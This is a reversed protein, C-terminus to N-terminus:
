QQSLSTLVAIIEGPTATGTTGLKKITVASALNGLSAAEVGSAGAALSATLASLFCDGAGVTDIPPPVPVGPVRTSKGPSAWLSGDPGLTMCVPAGTVKSLAQAMDEYSMTQDACSCTGMEAELATMCEYDNPTTIVGRFLRVRSRSDVVVTKGEESLKRLTDRVTPTIIGHELQDSVAIADVEGAIRCLKEILENEIESQLPSRNDFDIRPDEYAVDSIGKRIPKCYAPSIRTSSRIIDSTDMGHQECVRLLERGRWDEGVVTLLKVQGVGLACLCAAVNAGAGASFREQVVPLPFHPTERSLESLTMDAHWYIDLCSDGILLISLSGLSGLINEARQETLFNRVSKQEVAAVDNAFSPRTDICECM